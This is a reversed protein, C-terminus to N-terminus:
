TDCHKGTGRWGNGHMWGRDEQSLPSAKGLARNETPVLFLPKIDASGTLWHGRGATQSLCGM